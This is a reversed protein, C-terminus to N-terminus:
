WVIMGILVVLLILSVVLGVTALRERRLDDRLADGTWEVLEQEEDMKSLIGGVFARHDSREGTAAFYCGSFLLGDEASGQEPDYAFAGQLVDILRSKLTCRIQCLLHYLRQNGPRTMAEDERFLAYVWDEFTGCVLEGLAAMESETALTRCDYKRGFRQASVRQRGVRRMLERFGQQREMDTVLATVPCRVQLMYHITTLDSKVAQQLADADGTGSDIAAYPLLSLIGNIPCLPERVRNIQQCLYTLRGIRQTSEKSNLTIPKRETGSDGFVEDSEAHPEPQLFEGGLQMTGRIASSAPGSVPAPETPTGAPGQSPLFQDLQVTGMPRESAMPGAPSPVTGMPAPASTAPASSPPPSAPTPSAAAAPRRASPDGFEEYHRQRKAALGSSWSADSCFLYVSDSTAYWHLPAPGEPVCEVRLDLQGTQMIAREQGLSRSGIVLYVAMERIELGQEKLAEIGAAWSHDIEPYLSKEGELWLRLARYLVIPIIFVFAIVLLIRGFGIAHRWPVNNPDLYFFTWVVAVLTVLFLWTLVAACGPATSPILRSLWRHMRRSPPPTSEPADSM